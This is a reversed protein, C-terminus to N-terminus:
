RVPSRKGAEQVKEPSVENKNLNSFDKATLVLGSADESEEHLELKLSPKYDKQNFFNRLEGSGDKPM